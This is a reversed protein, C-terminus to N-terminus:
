DKPIVGSKRASKRRSQKEYEGVDYAMNRLPISYDITEQNEIGIIAFNVGFAAKRLMDRIKIKRGGKGKRFKRIFQPKRLFRTQTDLEQLDGKTILQKGGCGIGNIIDAYREDDLFYSKWTVDKTMNLEEQKNRLLM